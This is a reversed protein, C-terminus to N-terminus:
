RRLWVAPSLGTTDSGQAGVADGRSNIGAITSFDLGPSIPLMFLRGLSLLAADPRASGVHVGMVGFVNIDAVGAIAEGSAATLERMVGNQWLFYRGTSAEINASYGVVQGRDNIAHAQSHNDGPLVGLDIIRDGWWLTGRSHVADAMLSRGVVQGLNNVDVADSYGISGPLAGLMRATGNFWVTAQNTVGDDAFGAILGWDNIAYAQSSFGGPIRGLPVQQGNRRWLIAQPFYENTITTGSGVVDGFINISRAEAGLGDPLLGLDRMVGNEWIFARIYGNEATSVGVVQRRDNIAYPQTWTGGLTGLEVITYAPESPTAAIGAVAAISLAGIRLIRSM